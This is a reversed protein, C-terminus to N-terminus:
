EHMCLVPVHTHHLLHATHSRKFLKDALNHKKPIAVIWDLRTREAFWNIGETVDNSEITHYEPKFEKLKESILLGETIEAPKYLKDKPHVDMVHLEANFDKVIKGLVDIPTNELVKEYDCAFGIKRVPTFTAMYPVVLVPFKLYHIAKITNSGVLLKEFETKGTLGMVIIDPKINEALNNLGDRLVSMETKTKITIPFRLKDHIDDVFTQLEHEAALQMEESGMIPFVYESISVPLEYAHYLWLDAGYFSALNGAFEAANFAADSFDVPALITKM